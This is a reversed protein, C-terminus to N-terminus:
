TQSGNISAQTSLTKPLMLKGQKGLLLRAQRTLKPQGQMGRKTENRASWFVVRKTGSLHGEAVVFM